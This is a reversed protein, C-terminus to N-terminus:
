PSLVCRSMGRAERNRSSCCGRGSLNQRRHEQAGCIWGSPEVSAEGCISSRYLWTQVPHQCIHLPVTASTNLLCSVDHCSLVFCRSQRPARACLPSLLISITLNSLRPVWFFACGLCGVEPSCHGTSSQWILILNAEDKATILASACVSEETEIRPTGAQSQVTLERLVM